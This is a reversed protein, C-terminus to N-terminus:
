DNAMDGHIVTSPIQRKGRVRILEPRAGLVGIYVWTTPLFMQEVAKVCNDYDDWWIPTKDVNNMVRPEHTTPDEFTIFYKTM